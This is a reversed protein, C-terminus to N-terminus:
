TAECSVHERASPADPGAYVAKHDPGLDGSCLVRTGSAELEVSASGLIHGANWLRARFGPAPEFWECLEVPRTLGWAENADAETYIPSIPKEGARDRRHNRREAEYEHIRGSDALMYKLLDSTEGTCWVPGDYGEAVLRPVLGSHDIHAHTLVVAEVSGPDFAFPRYNLEELSRSGQFLGCDVLIRSKGSRFEMCSGTVTRAAGHFTLSLAM